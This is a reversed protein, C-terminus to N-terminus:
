GSEPTPLHKELRRILDAVHVDPDFEAAIGLTDFVGSLALTAEALARHAVVPGTDGEPLYHLLEGLLRMAMAQQGLRYSKEDM